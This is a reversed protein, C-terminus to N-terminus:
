HPRKTQQKWIQAWEGPTLSRLAGQQLRQVTALEALSLLSETKMTPETLLRSVDMVPSEASSVIVRDGTVAVPGVSRSFGTNDSPFQIPTTLRKGSTLDWFHVRDGREGTVCFQGDGLFAADYLENSHAMAPCVLKGTRWDWLRANGDKNATLLRQGDPSFRASFLGWYDGPHPLPVGLPEGTLLDQVRVTNTGTTGLALLRSDASVDIVAFPGVNPENAPPAFRLKGTDSERVFVRGRPTISILTLGDPSWRTRSSTGHFSLPKAWDDHTLDLVQQGDRSDFVKLSGGDCLVAVQPKDPRAAVSIPVAPLEIEALTRQGSLVNFLSLRGTPKTESIVAITQNDSCISSDIINEQQLPPGARQGDRAAIVLLENLPILNPMQHWKGLTVLRGDFSPRPVYNPASWGNAPLRLSTEAPLKWVRVNQNDCAAILNGASSFLSRNVTALNPLEQQLTGTTLSWLRVKWDYCGTMVTKGDSHFAIDLVYHTHPLRQHTGTTEWLDCTSTTGAAVRKGDPSSVVKFVMNLSLERVSDPTVDKGTATDWWLVANGGAGVTVLRREDDFFAPSSALNASYCPNHAVPNFPVVSDSPEMGISFLRAQMDRCSSVLRKGSPSFALSYVDQPHPWEHELAPTEGLRWVQVVRGGIAIRQGDPSVAISLVRGSWAIRQLVYGTETEMIRLENEFGVAVRRGDGLWCAENAHELKQTWSLITESAPDWIRVVNPWCMLLLSGGPQFNMRTMTSRGHTHFAVPLLAQDLMAGARLRNAAQRQADHPTQLAASAFWHMATRDDGKELALLGRETQMDALNAQTIRRAAESEQALKLNEASKKEADNRATTLEGVTSKLTKNLSQFYGAAITSGIAVLTILSGLTALLAALGKNRKAWRLLRESASIPRAHVPEDNLVRQLDAAFEGATQYRAAPDLEISKKIVTMLDRPVRRDILGIQPADGRLRMALLEERDVTAFAPQLTILELLTLGLSFVDSRADTANRFTEPAMYRLTGLVDGQRTLQGDNDGVDLKALGFDTLWSAGQQDILINSPKVDRHLVGHSHAYHLADAIESGIRAVFAARAAANGDSALPATDAGRNDPSLNINANRSIPRAGGSRVDSSLQQIIVTAVDAPSLHSEHAAKPQSQQNQSERQQTIVHDLSLGDVLQMAFYAVGDDMGSGYVEVIHSHHLRAISRAERQFRELSTEHFMSNPALVKLAVPRRLSEQIAEYVRGMGGRGIERILRYDGLKPLASEGNSTTTEASPNELLAAQVERFVSDILESQDPFQRLYETLPVDDSESLRLELDVALLERLTETQDELPVRAVFSSLEPPPVDYRSEEFERCVGNIRRKRAASLKDFAFEM